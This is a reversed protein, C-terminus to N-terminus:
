LEFQKMFCVLKKKFKKWYFRIICDQESSDQAQMAVLVTKTFGLHNKSIRLASNWAINCSLFLM